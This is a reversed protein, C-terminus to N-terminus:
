PVRDGENPRKRVGNMLVVGKRKELPQEVCRDRAFLGNENFDNCKGYRSWCGEWAM